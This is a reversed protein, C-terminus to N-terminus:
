LIPSYASVITRLYLGLDNMRLRTALVIQKFVSGM